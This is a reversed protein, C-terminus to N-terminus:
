LAKERPKAKGKGHMAELHRLALLLYPRPQNQGRLWAYLQPSVPGKDGRAEQVYIGLATALETKTMGTKDLTRKIELPWNITSLDKPLKKM